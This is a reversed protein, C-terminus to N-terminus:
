STGRSSTLQEWRVIEDDRNHLEGRILAAWIWLCPAPLLSAGNADKARRGYRPRSLVADLESRIMEEILERIRDRIGTEMPDFWNDFLQPSGETSPQSLEPKTTVSTM